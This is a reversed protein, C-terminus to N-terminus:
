ESASRLAAIFRDLATELPGDNVIEVVDAGNVRYAGARAVRAEIEAPSERGRAALRARLVGAPASVSLVIMGPFRERAEAIVERSVNVIVTRGAALDALATAPVGYCLGHARWALAYGSLGERMAFLAEDIAIHDEGGADAPRTIERRPFAFQPDDALASKAAAILTDKGVGSPGVM